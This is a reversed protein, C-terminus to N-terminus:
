VNSKWKEIKFDYLKRMEREIDESFNVRFTGEIEKSIESSNVNTNDTQNNSSSTDDEVSIEKYLTFKVPEKSDFEKMYKEFDEKSNLSNNNFTYEGNEVGAM